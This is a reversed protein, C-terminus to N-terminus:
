LDIIWRESDFEGVGLRRVTAGAFWARLLEDWEDYPRRNIHLEVGSLSSSCNNATLLIHGVTVRRLEACAAQDDGPLLHELVDFMSAVAFQGHSFPLADVTGFVVRGGTLEPVAEVGRVPYFGVSRAYELMEGRGCGVDLYPGSARVMSLMQQADRKRRDGMRYDPRRYAAIYKEIEIERAPQDITM